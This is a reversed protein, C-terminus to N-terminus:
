DVGASLGIGTLSSTILGGKVERKQFFKSQSSNPTVIQKTAILKSMIYAALKLDEPM